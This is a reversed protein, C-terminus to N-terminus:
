RVAHDVYAVVRNFLATVARLDAAGSRADRALEAVTADAGASGREAAVGACVRSADRVAPPDVTWVTEFLRDADRVSQQGPLEWATLAVPLDSSDCVVAWERGLPHEADLAVLALRGDVNQEFDAFAYANAAVKALESWRPRASEFHPARQFAGFLYARQSMAAFEDEIAWSLGLLTSKRLRNVALAPHKLRLEAYVSPAAPTANQLAEALSQAIAVDLRVGKRRRTQVDMVTAVTSEDYRRHGSVLRQPEPFGHRSEWMRLTPAGVGTREAVAGITLGPVAAAAPPAKSM